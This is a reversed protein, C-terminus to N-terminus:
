DHEPWNLAEAIARGLIWERDDASLFDLEYRFLDLCERYTSTLRSLDAGWMMRRAGYVDHIRRLYPHLDRFPYPERSFCPASSVMVFVNPYRALSLLEDLTGFAEPVHTDLPCGMHPILLKLTPHRELIPRLKGAVGPVLASIPLALRDCEAWFWDLTGDDLWDSFPKIHFSMRVGLMGKQDLWGRLLERADKAPAAFRGIVAFRQPYRRAMQLAWDNDEGAWTPPVIVARDVGARDMEELMEEAYFGGSRHPPRELKRWPRDPSEAEWLHIQADTVLM